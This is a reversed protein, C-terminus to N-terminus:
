FSVSSAQKANIVVCPLQLSNTILSQAFKDFQPLFSATHYSIAILDINKQQCLDVIKNHYAGGPPLLEINCVIDREEYQKRVILIRNKIKQSLFPDEHKQAVLFVEANYIKAIDGAIDVVQLSEKELDIPVLIKAIEKPKTDIQTVIFPVNSSTIVKMAFSGFLNQQVGKKGHTGMIILNVKEEKVIRAIDNFISGVKVISTLTTHEAKQTNAIIQNLKATASAIQSQNSVLNVVKVEAIVSRSLNVAYNLAADGVPTFDHLVLYINKSM